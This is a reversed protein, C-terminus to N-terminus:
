LFPTLGLKALTLITKDQWVTEYEIFPGEGLAMVVAVTYKNIPNKGEGGKGLGKKDRHPTFDGYWILNPAIRKIGWVLTIGVGQASTQLSLGTYTPSAGANGGGSMFGM